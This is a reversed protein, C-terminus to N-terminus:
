AAFWFEPFRRWSSDDSRYVKCAHGNYDCRVKTFTGTAQTGQTVVTFGAAGAVYEIYTTDDYKPKNHRGELTAGSVTFVTWHDGTVLIQDLHDAAQGSTAAVKEDLDAGTGAGVSVLAWKEGTGSEKWLISAAGTSGSALYGAEGDAVDAYDDDAAAFNVKVPCVGMLLGRGIRGSPIPELLIVFKGVHSATAPTVGDIAPNNQFEALNATPDFILDDIGLVEFRGRDSGSSNKIPLITVARAAAHRPGALGHDRAKNARAADIFANWAPAPIELRQGAHVKKLSDGM